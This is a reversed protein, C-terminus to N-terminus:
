VRMVYWIQGERDSGGCRVLRHGEVDHGAIRALFKGFGRLTGGTTSFHAIAALIASTVDDGAVEGAALTHSTWTEDGRKAHIAPLMRAAIAFDDSSLSGEAQGSLRRARIEARLARVETTLVGLASLIAEADTARM